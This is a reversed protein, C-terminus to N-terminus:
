PLAVIENIAACASDVSLDGSRLSYHTWCTALDAGTFRVISKSEPWIARVQVCLYLAANLISETKQHDQQTSLILSRFGRAKSTTIESRMLGEQEGPISPEVELWYLRQGQAMTLRTILVCRPRQTPRNVIAWPRRTTKGHENIARTPLPWVPEGELLHRVKGSPPPVVDWRQFYGRGKLRDFLQFVKNFREVLHEMGDAIMDFSGVTTASNGHSPDRASTSDAPVLDPDVIRRRYRYSEQKTMKRVLPLGIWRSGPSPHTIAPGMFTPDEWSTNEIHHDDWGSLDLGSGQYPVPDDTDHVQNGARPDNERIFHIPATHPWVVSVIQTCLLKKYDDNRLPLVKCRFRLKHPAFPIEARVHWPIGDESLASFIRKAARHGDPHLVLNAADSASDETMGSRLVVQWDGDERVFTREPNVILSKNSEWPGSILARAMMSRYAYFYRFVEHCPILLILSEDQTALMVAWSGDTPIRYEKRNVVRYTYKERDWWWPPELCTDYFRVIRPPTQVLDFEFNKEELGMSGVRVGRHYIGGIALESINGISVPAIRHGSPPVKERQMVQAAAARDRMVHRPAVDLRELHVGVKPQPAAPRTQHYGDVWRIWWYGDGRPFERISAARVTSKTSKRGVNVLICRVLLADLM